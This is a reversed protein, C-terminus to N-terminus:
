YMWPWKAHSHRESHLGRGWVWLLHEVYHFRLLMGRSSPHCLWILYIKNGHFLSAVYYFLVFIILKIGMSSPRCVWIPDIENGHFMHFLPARSMILVSNYQDSTITNSRRLPFSRNLCQKTCKTLSVPQKPKGCLGTFVEGRTYRIWDDKFKKCHNM